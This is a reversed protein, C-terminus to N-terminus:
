PCSLFVYAIITMKKMCSCCSCEVLDVVRAFFYRVEFNIKFLDAFFVASVFRFHLCDDAQERREGQFPAQM